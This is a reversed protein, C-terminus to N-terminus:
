VIPRTVLGLKKCKTRIACVSRTGNFLNFLEEDSLFYNNKLIEIEEDTWRNGYEVNNTSMLSYLVSTSLEPYLKHIEETNCKRYLESIIEIDAKSYKQNIPRNPDFVNNNKLIGSITNHSTNYITAIKRCSYKQNVYLDIINNIEEQKM